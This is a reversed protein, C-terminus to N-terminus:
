VDAEVGLNDALFRDYEGTSVIHTGDCNFQMRIADRTISIGMNRMYFNPITRLIQLKDIVRVIEEKALPQWHQYRHRYSDKYYEPLTLTDFETAITAYLRRILAVKEDYALV